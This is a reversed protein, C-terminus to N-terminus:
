RPGLMAEAHVMMPELRALLADIATADAQPADMGLRHALAVAEDTPSAGRTQHWGILERGLTDAATVEGTALHLQILWQASQGWGGDDNAAQREAIGVLGSIDQRGAVVDLYALAAKAERAHGSEFDPGDLRQACAMARQIRDRAREKDGLEIQAKGGVLWAERCLLASADQDELALLTSAFLTEAEAANGRDLMSRMRSVNLQQVFDHSAGFQAVVWSQVRSGMAVARADTQQGLLVVAANKAFAGRNVDDLPLDHDAVELLTVAGALAERDRRQYSHLRVRMSELHSRAQRLFSSGRLETASTHEADLKSSLADALQTFRPGDGLYSAIFARLQLAQLQDLWGLRHNQELDQLVRMAGAIDEAWWHHQALRQKVEIWQEESYGGLAHMEEIQLQRAKLAASSPGSRGLVESLTEYMEVRAQPQDALEQPVAALGQLALDRTSQARGVNWPNASTFSRVVFRKTADALAAQEIAEARSRALLTIGGALGVVMAMGLATALRNRAIWMSALYPFSSTRAAIPRRALFARLDDAFAQATPYRQHPKRALAKLVIADLDGALQESSIQNAVGPNRRLTASPLEVAQTSIAKVLSLGIEDRTEARHPRFGTLLEYVVVGAAYVDTLTSVEEGSVQEPAAYALTMWNQERTAQALDLQKAIGFDILRVRGQADILVNSPKLDRHVILHQHAYNLAECLAIAVKICENLTPRERVRWRDLHEGDVWDMAFWSLGHHNGSAIM